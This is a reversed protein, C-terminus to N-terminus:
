STQRIVISRGLDVRGVIQLLLLRELDVFELRPHGRMVMSMISSTTPAAMSLISPLRRRERQRTGLEAALVADKGLGERGPVNFFIDRDHFAM